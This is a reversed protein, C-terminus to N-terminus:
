RDLDIVMYARSRLLFAERWDLMNRGKGMQAMSM